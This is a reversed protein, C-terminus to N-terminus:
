SGIPSKTQQENSIDKSEGPKVGEVPDIAREKRAVELEKLLDMVRNEGVESQASEGGMDETNLISEYPTKDTPEQYREIPDGEGRVIIHSHGVGTEVSLYQELVFATAPYNVEIDYHTVEMNQLQPFDLPKESIPTKKGASISVIDYKTLASELRDAFGEPLDGAVRVKFKYTKQAETLYEVFKRM